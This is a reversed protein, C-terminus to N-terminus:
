IPGVARHCLVVPVIRRQQIGRELGCSYREADQVTGADHLIGGTGPWLMRGTGRGVAITAPEIVQLAQLVERILSCMCPQQVVTDDRYQRSARRPEPQLMGTGIGTTALHDLCRGQGVSARDDRVQVHRVRVRRFHAISAHQLAVPRHRVIAPDTDPLQIRLPTTQVHIRRQAFQEAIRVAALAVPRFPACAHVRLVHTCQVRQPPEARRLTTRGCMGRTDTRELNADSIRAAAVPREITDAVHHAVPIAPDDGHV